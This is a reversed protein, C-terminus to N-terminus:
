SKKKTKIVYAIVASSVIGMSLSGGIVQLLYSRTNFYSEAQAVTYVKNSVAYDIMNRFFLPSIVNVTLYFVPIALITIFVTIIAGAVFAEKWHITNNYSIVKKERLALYYIIIGIFSFLTSYLPHKSINIDHWGMEKEFVMWALSVITYIFSWKIEIRYKTMILRKRIM